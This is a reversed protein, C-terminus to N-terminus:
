NSIINDFNPDDSWETSYNSEANQVPEGNLLISTIEAMGNTPECSTQDTSEIVLEIPDLEQLSVMVTWDQTTVGDEATVKYTIPSSFDQSTNTNPSATAGVSLSFTPTLNSIDTCPLVEIHISNNVVDTVTEGVQDAVGFSLIGTKINPLTTVTVVWDQTTSGDESTVTYTVPSTFDQATGTNPSITAGASLTIEPILSSIDTGYPIEIEITAANIITEEVQDAIVFSFLSSCFGWIPINAEILVSETAFDTPLSTILPVCWNSLDQNFATAGSFMARMDTVSSVDWSGIYQNFSQANEFM